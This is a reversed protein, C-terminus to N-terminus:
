LSKSLWTSIRELVLDLDNLVEDNTVRVVSLGNQELHRSRAADSEPDDHSEGDLEIVLHADACYFDAVFPGIPHQRRFKAGLLRRNRLRSWLLREPFTSRNRLTRARDIDGTM